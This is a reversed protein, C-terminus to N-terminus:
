ATTGGTPIQAPPTPRGADRGRGDGVESVLVDLLHFVDQLSIFAWVIRLFRHYAQVLLRYGQMGIDPWWRRSRRAPLGSSIVFVLATTRGINEARHLGFRPAM